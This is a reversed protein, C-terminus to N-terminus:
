LGMIKQWGATYFERLEQVYRKSHEIPMDHVVIEFFGSFMGSILIHELQSDIERVSRGMRKLVDLFRHTGEREIEVMTHVFHEYETGEACCLILKFADFHRYIYNVMWDMCDGSIEGMQDPQKDPPLSSFIEQAQTFRSLLMRAPEEVLASFLDGKSSFYGYFAGTTVGAQRVIRRLSASQFGKDLFENKGADLIAERTTLNMHGM